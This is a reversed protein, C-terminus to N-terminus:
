MKPITLGPSHKIILHKITNKVAHSTIIYNTRDAPNTVKNKQADDFGVRGRLYFNHYCKRNVAGAPFYINWGSIFLLSFIVLHSMM